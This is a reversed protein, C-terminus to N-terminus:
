INLRERAPAYAPDIRLAKRWESRAKIKNEQLAYVEGLHYRAEASEGTERLILTYQEEAGSLDNQAILINGLLLRASVMTKYDRSIELARTLYARASAYEGLEFYSRAITVLFIDSGSLHGAGNVPRLVRSFAEVSSSYDKLAAYGLGLYENIDSAEYGAAHAAELYYVSVDMFPVGKYYYAKGLVYFIRSDKKGDKTLLAKRLAWISNDIYRQTDAANIQAIALQYASFGYVTLLFFDMPRKELETGSVTYVEDYRGSQWSETLRRKTTSAANNKGGVFLVIGAGVALLGVACLLKGFRLKRRYGKRYGYSSSPM